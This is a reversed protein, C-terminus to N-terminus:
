AVPAPPVTVWPVLLVVPTVSFLVDPEIVRNLAAPEAVAAVVHEGRCFSLRLENDDDGGAADDDGDDDSAEDDRILCSLSVVM